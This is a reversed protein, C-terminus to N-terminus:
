FPQDNDIMDPSNADVDMEDEFIGYPAGASTFGAVFMRRGSIDVWVPHAEEVVPERRRARHSPRRKRQRSATAAERGNFTAWTL